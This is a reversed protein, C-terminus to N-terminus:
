LGVQNLRNKLAMSHHLKLDFVEIIMPEVGLELAFIANLHVLEKALNGM